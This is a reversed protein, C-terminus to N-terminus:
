KTRGNKIVTRARRSNVKVVNSATRAGRCDFTRSPVRNRGPSAKGYHSVALFEVDPSTCALIAEFLPPSRSPSRSDQRPTPPASELPTAAGDDDLDERGRGFVKNIMEEVLCSNNGEHSRVKLLEADM